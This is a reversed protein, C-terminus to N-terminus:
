TIQGFVLLVKKRLYMRKKVNNEVHGLAITKLCIPGQFHIKGASALYTNVTLPNM